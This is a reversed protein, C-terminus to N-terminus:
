CRSHDVDLLSSDNIKPAFRTSRRELYPLRGAIGENISIAPKRRYPRQPRYRSGPIEEPPMHYALFVCPRRVM